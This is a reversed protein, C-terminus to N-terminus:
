WFDYGQPTYDWNRMASAVTTYPTKDELYDTDRAFRVDARDGLNKLAEEYLLPYQKLDVIYQINDMIGM